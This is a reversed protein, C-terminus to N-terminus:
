FGGKIYIFEKIKRAIMELEKPTADRKLTNCRRCAVVMNDKNNINPIVHDFTAVKNLDKSHLLVKEGCYYCKESSKEWVSTLDEGKLIGNNKARKRNFENARNKWYNKKRWERRRKTSCSRCIYDHKMWYRKNKTFEIDQKILGCQYCKWLNENHLDIDKQKWHKERVGRMNINYRHINNHVCGSSVKLINAIESTTKRQVIYMAELENKNLDIRKAM